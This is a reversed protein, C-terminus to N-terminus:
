WASIPSLSCASFCPWLFRDSCTRHFFASGSFIGARTSAATSLIALGLSVPLQIFVSGLAFLATNTVAKYFDPDHFMFRFNDFGVFVKVKPGVTIYFALVLSKILPYLYFLTFSLLFPAIFVYPARTHRFFPRRSARKNV